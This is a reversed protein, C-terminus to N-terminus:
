NTAEAGEKGQSLEPFPTSSYKSSLTRNPAVVNVKQVPKTCSFFSRSEKKRGRGDPGDGEEERGETAEISRRHRQQVAEQAEVVGGLGADEGEDHGPGDDPGVLVGVDGGLVERSDRTERTGM